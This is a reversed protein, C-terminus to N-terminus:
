AADQAGSGDDGDGRIREKQGKDQQIRDGLIQGAQERVDRYIQVLIDNEDAAWPQERAGQGSGSVRRQATRDMLEHLAYRMREVAGIRTLLKLSEVREDILHARFLIDGYQKSIRALLEETTKELDNRKQEAESEKKRLAALLSPVKLLFEDAAAKEKGRFWGMGGRIAQVNAISEEWSTRHDIANRFDYGYEDFTKLRELKEIMGAGLAYVARGALNVETAAGNLDKRRWSVEREARTIEEPILRVEQQLQPLEKETIGEFEVERNQKEAAEHLRANLTPDALLREIEQDIKRQHEEVAGVLKRAKELQTLDEPQSLVGRQALIELRELESRAADLLQPTERAEQLLDDHTALKGATEAERARELERLRAEIEQNFTRIEALTKKQGERDAAIAEAKVAGGEAASGEEPEPADADPRPMAPDSGAHTVM